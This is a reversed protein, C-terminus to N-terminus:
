NPAAHGFLSNFTSTSPDIELYEFVKGAAYVSGCAIKLMNDPWERGAVALAEEFCSAYQLDPFHRAIIEKPLSREGSIEYFIVSDSAANLREIMQLYDKDRLISVIFGFPQGTGQLHAILKKIGDVNHAVDVIVTHGRARITQFRGLLAAPVPLSQSGWQRLVTTLPQLLPNKATLIKYCVAAVAFNNAQYDPLKKLFTPLRYSRVGIKLLGDTQSFEQGLSFLPIQRQQCFESLFTLLEPELIIEGSRGWVLPVGPRTIGLKELLIERLTGGLIDVHDRSISCIVSLSPEVSNTSDLRGGLGVELVQGACDLRSFLQWALLTSVEFFSLEEYDDGLKQKLDDLASILDTDSIQARSVAYRERFFRLHPSNFLGWPQKDGQVLLLWLFSSVSGKGNTGGVLVTPRSAAEPRYGLQRFARQMRALGPKMEGQRKNFIDEFPDRM